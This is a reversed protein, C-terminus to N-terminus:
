TYFVWLWHLYIHKWVVIDHVLMNFDIVEINILNNTFLLIENIKDNAYIERQYLNLNMNLNFIVIIWVFTIAWPLFIKWGIDMLQDYRYRPLAARVLIYIFCFILIKFIFFFIIYSECDFFINNSWGGFFLITTLTSMVIMNSYEGLFFMAFIISSYEVNYGAVLEAEAEPLDFPARNTEAIISIIFLIFTPFLPIIYWNSHMQVWVIETLNMSGSLFIVPLLVLTISVEYSIMQAASRLAGFFAYKSYSSWGAMIIGYVNLSSIMLLVLLGYNLSAHGTFDYYSFWVSPIILIDKLDKEWDILFNIQTFSSDLELTFPVVTWCLFSLSLVILPSILFLQWNSKLPVIREKVLLKFGDAIPQLIGLFGVKNPGKRRQIAAMVKREAITLYAISILACLIIILTNLIVIYNFDLQLFM